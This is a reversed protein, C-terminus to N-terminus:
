FGAAELGAETLDRIAESRKPKAEQAKSWKDVRALLDEGFRVGIFPSRGARKGGPSLKPRGPRAKKAM